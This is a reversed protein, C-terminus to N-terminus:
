AGVCVEKACGAFLADLETIMELPPKIYHLGRTEANAGRLFFYAVGGVWQDYDYDEGLRSRLYRHLALLYLSYQLDYRHELIAKDQNELTYDKDGKGLQNSKYDAVYFQNDFRFTLDMFGKLMGNLHEDRLNPREFPTDKFLHNRIIQDITALNANKIEFWFEMEMRSDALSLKSLSFRQPRRLDFEAQLFTALWEDLRTKWEPAYRQRQLAKEVIARRKVPDAAITDFGQLGVEQLVKHLFDGHTPGRPFDHLGEKDSQSHASKRDPKKEEGQRGEQGSEPDGMEKYDLLRSYSDIRWPEFAEGQFRLVREDTTVAENSGIFTVVRFAEVPTIETYHEKKAINGLLGGLAEVTIPKGGNLLYGFASLHLSTEVDETKDSKKAGGQKLPAVGLWCAHKARTVAVYLLRLAEQLREREMLKAPSDDEDGGSDLSIALQLNRDHFKYFEETASIPRSLCVFPLFVLNFELGKSKHITIVRILASDSELRLVNEEDNTADEMAEQLFRLLGNQGDLSSAEKQLIESLHLLNTLTREGQANQSLRAPLDQDLIFQRIAPLIGKQHWNNGYEVFNQIVGDLMVEDTNLTELYAYSGPLALTPTALAARIRRGDRPSLFAELWIAIDRAEDTKFISDKDSLYVSKLGRLRLAEQVAKAETFSSVLIAIDSPKLARIEQKTNKFFVQNLDPNDHDLSHNLLDVISNAAINAMRSRYEGSGLAAGDNDDYWFRLGTLTEEHRYLREDINKATVEQFSIQRSGDTGKEFYFAGKDHDEAYLFLQNVAEVMERTSRHNTGLTHCEVGEQNRADLYSYIDAGRFGYIAQKPDGVMLWAQNPRIQGYIAKFIGYQLPDTDQFEDILAVPYQERIIEALRQGESGTIAEYLKLILDNQDIVARDSKINTFHERVWGASELHLAQKLELKARQESKLALYDAIADFAAHQPEAGQYKSHLKFDGSAFLKLKLGEASMAPNMSWATIDDLWQEVNKNYTTNNLQESAKCNLIQQKIEESHRAWLNRVLVESQGLKEEYQDLAELAGLIGKYAKAYGSVTNSFTEPPLSLLGRIKSLLAEPGKAMGQIRELHKRELPYIRTRWFDRICESLLEAEDTEITLNFLSGSDFAHQKLIRQCWGHITFIAADDMADAALGLRYADPERKEPYKEYYARLGELLSDESGDKKESPSRLFKAVENLRKRIRDQLEQTAAKTFTVVLIDSPMLPHNREHGLILRVYLSTISWTKGTGASAELLQIGELPFTAIHSSSTSM